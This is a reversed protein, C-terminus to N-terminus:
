PEQAAFEDCLRRFLEDMNEIATLRWRFEQKEVRGLLSYTQQNGGDLIDFAVLWAGNEGRIAPSVHVIQKRGMSVDAFLPALMGQSTPADAVKKGAFAGSAIGNRVFAATERILLQRAAAVNSLPSFMLSLVPPIKEGGQSAAAAVVGVAHDLVKETDVAADFARIDANDIAGRVAQLCARAQGAESAAAMGPAVALCFSFLLIPLWINKLRQKM